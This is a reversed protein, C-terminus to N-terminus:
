PDHDRGGGPGARDGTWRQAAGSLPQRLSCGALAASRQRWVSAHGGIDVPACSAPLDSEKRRWQRFSGLWGEAFRVFGDVPMRAALRLLDPVLGCRATRGRSRVACGSRGGQRHLQKDGDAVAGGAASM